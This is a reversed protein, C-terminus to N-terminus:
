NKNNNGSQLSIVCGSKCVEEGDVVDIRMCERIGM